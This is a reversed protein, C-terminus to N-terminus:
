TGCFTQYNKEFDEDSPKMLESNEIRFEYPKSLANLLKNFLEMEGQTAAELAQEVLHNRAILVPNQTQMLQKAKEMGSSEEVINKWKYLWSKLVMNQTIDFASNGDQSLGYFTNTYDLKENKMIELLEDVLPYFAPINEAVGIKNLMMGYFKQKWIEDIKDFTNQAIQLSKEKDPHLIPLLTEAFRALNWKIIQPQNGFAYRGNYDISSYVTAPHYANIFACPGYDFTEGSISTNDTNMVGHIFGVRMWSVVLNVQQEIVKNLLSLVPNADQTIAPYLRQITYDALAQLDEKSCMRAAYEFTGVRIHSKMVRVLAAGEHIDERFVSEGTKIIALSRSTTIGLHHMAESILYERLMAKLTAKGDGGRSYLTRGSGKLQIDLRQNQIDIHEGIMIARGDGLKTFHGFQHGAYAQAYTQNSSQNYIIDILDQPNSSSLNLEDSLKQNFLFVEPKSIASPKELSYFKEPLSLYSFEFKFPNKLKM